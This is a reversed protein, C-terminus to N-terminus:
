IHILSLTPRETQFREYISRVAIRFGILLVSSGLLEIAVVSLPVPYTAGMSRAALNLAIFIGTGMALALLVRRADRTGSFRIIGAFTRFALMGFARILLYGPLFLRAAALEHFPPHFEFRIAYALGLSVTCIALDISFIVWRPVLQPRSRLTHLLNIM